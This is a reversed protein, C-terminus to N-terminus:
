RTWKTVVRKREPPKDNAGLFMLGEPHLEAKLKHYQSSSSDTPAANTHHLLDAVSVIGVLHRFPRDKVVPLHRIGRAKMIDVARQRTDDPSVCVVNESPTMVDTVPTSVLPYRANATKRMFKLLDRDTVIGAIAHTPETVILAGVRHELIKALAEGVSQSDPITWLPAQSKLYRKLERGRLGGRKSALVSAITEQAALKSAVQAAWRFWPRAAKSALRFLM